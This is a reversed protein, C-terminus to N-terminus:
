KCLTEVNVCFMPFCQYEIFKYPLGRVISPLVRAVSQNLMTRSKKGLWCSPNRHWLKVIRSTRAKFTKTLNFWIKKTKEGADGLQGARKDRRGDSGRPNLFHNDRNVTWVSMNFTEINRIRHGIYLPLPAMAVDRGQVTIANVILRRERSYDLHRDDMTTM